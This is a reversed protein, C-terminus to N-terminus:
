PRCASPLTTMYQFTSAFATAGAEERSDARTAVVRFVVSGHRDLFVLSSAEGSATGGVFAYIAGLEHSALRISVAEGAGGIVLSGRREDKRIAPLPGRIEFDHADKVIDIVAEPWQRLSEWVAAAAGPTVGVRRNSPFADLAVATSAKLSEQLTDVSLGPNVELTSRATSRQVTSACLSGGAPELLTLVIAVSLIFLGIGGLVLTTWHSIRRHSPRKSPRAKM